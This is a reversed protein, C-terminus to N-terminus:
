RKQGQNSRNKLGGKPILPPKNPKNPPEKGNGSKNSNRKPLPPPKNSPTRKHGSMGPPPAANTKPTNKKKKQVLNLSIYKSIYRYICQNIYISIRVSNEM